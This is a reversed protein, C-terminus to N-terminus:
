FFRLSFFATAVAVSKTGRPRFIPAAAVTKRLPAHVLQPAIVCLAISQTSRGRLFPALYVPLSMLGSSYTGSM